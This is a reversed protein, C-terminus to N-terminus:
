PAEHRRRPVRPELGLSKRVAHLTEAEDTVPIEGHEGSSLFGAVILLEAIQPGTLDVTKVRPTDSFYVRRVARELKAVAEQRPARVVAARLGNRILHAIVGTDNEEMAIVDRESAERITRLTGIGRDLARIGDRYRIADEYRHQRAAREQEDVFRLRVDCGDGDFTAFAESMRARYADRDIPLVCPAPCGSDRYACPRAALAADIRRPCRRLDYLETLREALTAAAWRSTFPGAHTGRKRPSSVVKLGPVPSSDAYILYSGRIRHGAPDLQAQYRTQLRRELLQADLQSRTVVASLTEVRAAVSHRSDDSLPYFFGRTRSRLSKAKGVFIVEGAADRFLFVGPEDPLGSTLHLREALATQNGLGCFTALAGVTKIGIRDLDPMMATFVEAAAMADDLARHTPRTTVDFHEALAALSYRPLGPHLNRALCLTDLAPRGWPRGWLREAEYDMYSLDFRYNHAVLVADQAFEKFALVAQDIDVAGVLVSSTIGTLLEVAMPVPDHPRVLLQFTDVVHGARLRAAGIEIISNRGPTPGTAELDVAVFDCASLLKGSYM